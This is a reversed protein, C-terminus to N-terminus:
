AARHLIDAWAAMEDAALGSVRRCDAITDTAASVPDVPLVDQGGTLSDGCDFPNGSACSAYEFM